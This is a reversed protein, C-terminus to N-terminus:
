PPPNAPGEESTHVGPSTGWRDRSLRDAWPFSELLVCDVFPLNIQQKPKRNLSSFLYLLASMDEPCSCM